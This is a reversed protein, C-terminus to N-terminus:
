RKIIGYNSIRQEEETMNKQNKQSISYKKLVMDHIKKIEDQHKKNKGNKGTISESHIRFFNLAANKYAIKGNELIRLYFYWDGAQSFDLAEEFYKKYPIKKDNKFVVCSVNPITCNVCMVEEIEDEGTKIYDHNWHGSHTKDAIKKYSNIIVRNYTNMLVSDSYSIVVGSDDFGAMVAALFHRNSYDDAECIWIYDGSAENFGKEWQFMAKGSNKDNIIKRIQIDPFERKIKTIEEDIVEISNDTSADDLIILEYIPYTQNIVSSIRRNLYKAYNYNPIIVSVKKAETKKVKLFATRRSFPFFPARFFNIIGLFIKSETIYKKIVAKNM